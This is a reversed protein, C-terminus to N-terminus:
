KLRKILEMCARSNHYPCKWLDVKNYELIPNGEQNVRYFWEGDANQSFFKLIFDSIRVAHYLYKTNDTIEFTNVLGVLAEAQPWWEFEHDLHNGNRDGEHYLGGEKCIGQLAADTIAALRGKVKKILAKDGLILASEYVLWGAEIDHGYSIETSKINWNEDFFLNLHHDETSIITNLFLEILNEIKEALQDNKWITYLNTYAEIIHLHTNMTKKENMDKFSLRVDDVESWDRNFAEFYGNKEHDFAKLEILQFLEISFQLALENRTIKFYESMGYMTFAQAYIQKKMDNPSGDPNVTWFYGDYKHDKFNENIYEYATQAMILDNEDGALKYAASFTWLLRANLILGKPVDKLPNNKNDIAGYFGGNEKDVTSKRWYPLINGFLEQNAFYLLKEKLPQKEM